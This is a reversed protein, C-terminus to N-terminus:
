KGGVACWIALGRFSCVHCLVNMACRTRGCMVCVRGCVHAPQRSVGCLDTPARVKLSSKVLITSLLAVGLSGCLLWQVRPLAVGGLSSPHLVVVTSCTGLITVSICLALNGVVWLVERLDGAMEAQDGGDSWAVVFSSDSPQSSLLRLVCVCVCVYM